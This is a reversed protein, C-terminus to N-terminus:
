LDRNCYYQLPAMGHRSGCMEIVEDIWYSRGYKCIGKDTVTPHKVCQLEELPIDLKLVTDETWTHKLMCQTCVGFTRFTGLARQYNKCKLCRGLSKDCHCKICVGSPSLLSLSVSRIGCKPCKATYYLRMNEILSLNHWYQHRPLYKRFYTACLENDDLLANRIEKSLILVTLVTQLACTRLVIIKFIEIM